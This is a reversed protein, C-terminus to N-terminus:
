PFPKATTLGQFQNNSMTKNHRFGLREMECKFNKSSHAQFTNDKCWEKYAAYVISSAVTATPSVFCKEEVFLAVPNSEKRYQATIGRIQAPMTFTGQARLRRLGAMAWNFIGPLEQDLQQKLDKIQDTDTFQRNFPIVRIRRWFGESTDAVPPLENMAWWLKSTPYLTFPERYIQRVRMTDGSVLTKIIADEVLNQTASTESCLAVKKGALDALQYRERRLQNIDLPVAAVGALQEIMHFLVGKGNAGEGYCLFIVHQDVSTTLSYGIAEQLFTVLEPDHDQSHPKTFTSLLYLPLMCTPAKDDYAFPLQTTLYYEPRHDLLKNSELDYVGNQLNIMGHTADVLEEPVYFESKLCDMVSNKITVAPRLGDRQEFERLLSWVESSMQLDHIPQWVGNAYHWWQGRTYMTDLRHRTLYVAAIQTHTSVKTQTAM